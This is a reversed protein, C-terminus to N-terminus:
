ALLKEAVTQIIKKTLQNNDIAPKYIYTKEEKNQKLFGRNALSAMTSMVTTYPTFDSNKYEVERKLIIEHVERVTIVKKEWIIHMIQAELDSISQLGRIGVEETKKKNGM